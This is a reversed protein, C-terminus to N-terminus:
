LGRPEIDAKHRAAFKDAQDYFHGQFREAAVAIEAKMDDRPLLRTVDIIGIRGIKGPQFLEDSPVRIRAAKERVLVIWRYHGPMAFLRKAAERIIAAATRAVVASKFEYVHIDGSGARDIAMMDVKSRGGPWNAEFFVKPLILRKSILRAVADHARRELTSESMQPKSYLKITQQLNMREAMQHFAEARDRHHVFDAKDANKM